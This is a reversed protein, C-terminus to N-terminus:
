KEETRWEGGDKRKGDREGEEKGVRTVRRDGGERERKKGRRGRKRM